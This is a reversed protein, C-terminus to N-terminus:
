KANEEGRFVPALGRESSRGPLRREEAPAPAGLRGCEVEACEQYPQIESGAAGVEASESFAGWRRGGLARAPARMRDRGRGAPPVVAPRGM